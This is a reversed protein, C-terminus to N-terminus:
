APIRRAHLALRAAAATYWDGNAAIEPQLARRLFKPVGDLDTTDIPEVVAKM